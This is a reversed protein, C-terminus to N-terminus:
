KPKYNNNQEHRMTILCVKQAANLAERRREPKRDILALNSELGAGRSGYHVYSGPALSDLAPLAPLLHSSTNTRLERPHWHAPGCLVSEPTLM